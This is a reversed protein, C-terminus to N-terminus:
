NELVIRRTFVRGGLELRVFYVGNARCASGLDRRRWHLTHQGAELARDVLTAITRGQLDHVFLRAPASIPTTLRLSIADTAPQPWPGELTFSLAAPVQVWSTSTFDEGAPRSVGLRYAYRRGAVVDRDEGTVFGSGDAVLSILRTWSAGDESRYLTAAISPESGSWRLRVRDALAEVSELALDTAVIDGGLTGDANVNQAYIDGADNRDDSWAFIAGHAGDPAGVLDIKTSPTGSLLVGGDAWQPIGAADLRQAYLQDTYVGAFIFGGASDPVTAHYKGGNLGFLNVGAPGWLLTGAADIRQTRIGLFRSERFTLVVGGAGDPTLIPAAQFHTPSPDPCARIGYSSWGPSVTGNAALHQVYANSSDSTANDDWGIFVGGSGDAALCRKPGIGQYYPSTSVEGGNPGWLLSGDTAVHQAFLKITGTRTDTWAVLAGGLGDAVVSPFDAQGFATSLAVGGSTWLLSGSDSIHQAFIHSGMPLRYDMWALFAGGAGDPAISLSSSPQGSAGSALVGNITWQPEGAANLRQVYIGGNIADHASEFAIIVGGAGDAAVAPTFSQVSTSCVPAGDARFGQGVAGSALLHQSYINPANSPPRRGDEWALFIGGAGDSAATTM